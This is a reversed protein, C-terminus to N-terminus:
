SPMRETCGAFRRGEIRTDAQADEVRLIENRAENHASISLVATVRRRVYGAASGIAARHELQDAKLLAVAIGTANAVNRTRDPVMHIARDLDPEGSMISSRLEVLASLSQSDLGSKHGAFVSALFKELSARDLSPHTTMSMGSPSCTGLRIM